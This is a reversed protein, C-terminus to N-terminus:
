SPAAAEAFVPWHSPQQSAVLSGYYANSELLEEHTGTAVLRKENLLLIRDAKQITSLRHAVIFLTKDRVLLPLADFISKEVLSDLASSPEDLILIDPNKILARAIAMRQKQGESLNVGKEGVKAQYGDPLGAIYDHIGAARAAQMVVATDADQNGYRLNDIITGSLLLTSQPVYGIRRRLSELQYASAPAGDFCIEGRTPIYFRLLLSLLTTKGVGSPGVIAVHEGPRVHFSVHEVVPDSGNYSFTVDQFEVEGALREVTRGTPSNEEPVIDFLASVRELSALANQLQLNATALFRAPEYVFALYSQFALLSGLTWEGRVILIAGGALVIARAASPMSGIILNALSNVVTQEMAIQRAAQLQEMVAGVTRKESSFAKILLSASLSEQVTRSVNAQKEMGQHSLVRMKSSFFRVCVVLVPLIVLTVTALKWELYFLVGVGGVFRLAQSAVYVLTSSFFWRLGQVDSLLRSMLYGTQKDDFFSKPFRLTRDLLSGQIDLLVEQEFRAFYFSQLAGSVMTLLQIVALLLIVALLMGLQKGLVVNDVFYRFILPDPFAILSTFLILIAGLVGKRWHRRWFPSLNKLNARTGAYGSRGAIQDDPLTQALGQRLYNLWSDM